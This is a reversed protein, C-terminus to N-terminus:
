RGVAYGQMGRPNAGAFIQGDAELRAGTLRGESWDGGMEAAHGRKQLDALVEPAFRGEIVVKGPRAGRPWFSSIWHESHFSPLDIAQQINFRHDVMRMLMIPQWQDQQEGGPTGFSMWPKGDRLVMSPSLTTRPRKGPQLGNPLTEDLWFMQCRSGLCFGLGPIAPSSQLWGASPTASVMNGWRDIIDIHCTDGGAAGLRSVTPEGTGAAAAMEQARRLAAAYDTRPSRGEPSGPRWDNNAQAGILRRREATYAPSLLAAMPVDTFDPDGYFAERDAYALKMAEVVTHVFGAGVPDMAGIDFGELLALTQLMTPGQSWPGCKLVTHGRYDHALPAEVTARWGAMDDATLLARHRRGSTDLAEFERGFRDIAEAVFGQYWARRAAEIQAERDGGVAEAERVVRAYTEALEPNTYLAGPKPGGDRLWLAASTPWATEFLPRVTELTACVRPVVHAGRAAYGIAYDLVDRVSWTGHDRLMLMWADFAGPIPACLFGTGPVIDLGLSQMRAVTMARPAPGQGCIVQQAGLTASHLIIPCDGGPGNLHPEVIQLTFGAAVAADFANGGRELVAMGVQSAIWHTTAVAGFTGAIEPRTTFM